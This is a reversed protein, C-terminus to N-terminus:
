SRRRGTKPKPAAKPKAPARNRKGGLQPVDADASLWQQMQGAMHKAAPDTATDFIQHIQQLLQNPDYTMIQGGEIRLRIRKQLVVVAYNNLEFAMKRRLDTEIDTVYDATNEDNKFDQLRETYLKGLEAPANADFMIVRLMYYAIALKSPDPSASPKFCELYDSHNNVLGQLQEKFRAAKVLVRLGYTDASTWNSVFDCKVDNCIRIGQVYAAREEQSGKFNATLKIMLRLPSSLYRVINVIKMATQNTKVSVNRMITDLADVDSNSTNGSSANNANNSNYSNSNCSNTEAKIDSLLKSLTNRSAKTQGSNGSSNASLTMIGDDNGGALVFKGLTNLDRLTTMKYM